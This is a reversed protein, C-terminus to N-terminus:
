LVDTLLNLCTKTASNGIVEYFTFKIEFKWGGALIVKLRRLVFVVNIECGPAAVCWSSFGQATEMRGSM